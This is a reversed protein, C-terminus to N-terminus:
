YQHTIQAIGDGCLFFEPNLNEWHRPGHEGEYKWHHTIQKQTCAALTLLIFVFLAIFNIRKM